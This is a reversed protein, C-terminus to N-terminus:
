VHAPRVPMLVGLAEGHEDRLVGPDAPRARFWRDSECLRKLLDAYAADLPWHEGCAYVMRAEDDSWRKDHEHPVPALEVAETAGDTMSSLHQTYDRADDLPATGAPLRVAWCGNTAWPIGHVLVCWVRIYNPDWAPASALILSRAPEPVWDVEPMPPPDPEGRTMVVEDVEFDAKLTAQAIAEDIAQDETAADVDVTFSYCRLTVRYSRPPRESM